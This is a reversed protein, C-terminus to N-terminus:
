PSPSPAQSMGDREIGGSSFLILLMAIGSVVSTLGAVIRMCTIAWPKMKAVVGLGVATIKANNGVARMVKWAFRSVRMAMRGVGDNGFVAYYFSVALTAVLRRLVKGKNGKPSLNLLGEYEKAEEVETTTFVFRTGSTGGMGIRVMKDYYTTDLIVSSSPGIQLPLYTYEGDEGKKKKTSKKNSRKGFYIRPPDFYARVALDTLPAVTRNANTNLQLREDPSLPIADGRLIVTIRLLGNLADLSVVNVAQAVAVEEESESHTSTATAPEELPLLHQFTMRTRFLKQALGNKRTWKGGVPNDGKKTPLVKTVEYLGVLPQFRKPDSTQNNNTNNTTTTSSSSPSSSLFSSELSAIANKIKDENQDKQDNNDDGDDNDTTNTTTTDSSSLLSLLEDSPLEHAQLQLQQHQHRWRASSSASASASASSTSSLPAIVISSPHFLSGSTFADITDVVSSAVFILFAPLTKHM